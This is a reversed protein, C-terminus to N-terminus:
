PLNYARNLDWIYADHTGTKIWKVHGDAFAVNSGELHRESNFYGNDEPATLGTFDVSPMGYGGTWYLSAQNEATGYGSEVLMYTRSPYHINAFLMGTKDFMVNRAGNDNGPIAYTPYYQNTPDKVPGGPQKANPCRFLTYSKVYPQIQVHWAASWAAIMRDDYDASYQLMGTAIQKENSMCTSRRANERIRVFVPFLIASLLTIITIVVLLETLTFARPRDPIYTRHSPPEMPSPAGKMRILM